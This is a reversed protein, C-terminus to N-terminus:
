GPTLGRYFEQVRQSQQRRVSELTLRAIRYEAAEEPVLRCHEQVVAYLFKFADRPQHMQDLADILMERTVDQAFLDSLVLGAGGEQTAQPEPDPPAATPTQKEGESSGSKEASPRSQCAKLRASALDYLTAGSWSLREVLNQKDLRAEQFFDATERKVAHSLELPLLLKLGVGRQQLFKNDLMPWVLKKMKEADGSIITPEDMRDVLVHMGVADLRALVELLRGTLQYRPESPGAQGPAPTTTATPWPQTARDSARLCTLMARLEKPSRGLAPIAKALQRSLVWIKAGYWAWAVWALVAGAISLVLAPLLWWPGESVLYHTTLLGVAVVTIITALLWLWHMPLQWGLRLKKALTNWRDVVSGSRPQDYLAALVALDVRLRRPAKRLRKVADEPVPMRSEDDPNPPTEALLSDVLRTVAVSLIGDQHDALRLRDFMAQENGRNARTLRDLFPNLDDYAVLMTKRDPHARNHETVRRGILLRIATKGSGKEGFVVSTAPEDIRGMIKGFDPHAAEGGKLRDFVPDHRAEEARFPNDTIGHHALFHDINM